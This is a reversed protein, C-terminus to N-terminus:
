SLWICIGHHMLRGITDSAHYRATSTIEANIKV